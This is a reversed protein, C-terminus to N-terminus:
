VGAVNTQPQAEAFESSDIVFLGQQQVHAVPDAKQQQSLFTEQRWLAGHLAAPENFAFADQALAKAWGDADPQYLMANVLDRLYHAGYTAEPSLWGIAQVNSATDTLSPGELYGPEVIEVGEHASASGVEHAAEILLRFHRYSQQQAAQLLAQYEANDRARAVLLLEPDTPIREAVGIKTFMENLRHAYTHRSFVERIGALSRRRWEADDTLLTQIAEEAERENNVLWVADSEFLEEIGRAWTSVVPTGSAMLEFVRRSFMTPSDTVSNVNLFVRYRGYETCLEKYPLSSRIGHQYEDPFPFIGTDYNRDFIDLGHRNAAKLLWQMAEGREAHRNGYWSGAFCARAHRGALPAPKHLAPQAAFPLAHVNSNGTHKRYSECMNADTTTIHDVLKASGMFKQHHVPDEKNWFVSPIGKERAYQAMHAVEHGPKHAYDGVRYQWSGGNGKWASEIFFLAPPYKEALAYWNDPRPQILNLEQEFCGATFEDMVGIAYPKGNDPYDPWGFISIEAAQESPPTFESTEPQDPDVEIALKDIFIRDGNDADFRSLGIAVSAVNPPVKFRHLEAVTGNTCGLYKFHGGLKSSRALKGCALDLENGQADFPKVLMVAKRKSNQQESQHRIAASISVEDGSQVSASQWEPQGKLEWSQTSRYAQDKSIRLTRMIPLLVRWKVRWLKKRLRNWLNLTHSSERRLRWLRVPLKFAARASGAAERVLLGARYTQSTKLATLQRELASAREIEADHDMASKQLRDELASIQEALTENERNVRDLQSELTDVQQELSAAREMEAGQGRALTELRNELESVKETAAKYDERTQELQNLLQQEADQGKIQKAVSDIKRSVSIVDGSIKKANEDAIMLSNLIKESSFEMLDSDSLPEAQPAAEKAFVFFDAFSTNSPNLTSFPYRNPKASILKWQPYWEAVDALVDRFRVYGASENVGPRGGEDSNSFIIVFRSAVAFLHDLYDRYIQDNSLHFVVDLSLALEAEYLSPDFTAPDYVEFQKSADDAFLGRCQEIVTSSIDLGTYQPYEALTLQAGDGCGLEIVSTIEHECVFENLFRAKFRALRGYSGSGSNSGSAYRQEWYRAVDYHRKHALEAHEIVGFPQGEPQCPPTKYGLANLRNLETESLNEASCLIILPRNESAPLQNAILKSRSEPDDGLLLVSCAELVEQEPIGTQITANPFRNELVPVLEECGGVLRYQGGLGFQELYDCLAARERNETAM